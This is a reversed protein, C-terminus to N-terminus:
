SLREKNKYYDVCITPYKRQIMENIVKEINYTFSNLQLEELEHDFIAYNGRNIFTRDQGLSGPNILSYKGRKVRFQKHSHGILSHNQLEIETDEFIYKDDLTHVCTYNGLSLTESFSSIRATETFENYCVDFFAKAVKNEGPYYGSLFYDEHNGLLSQCNLEESLFQVCQDSWPGYNVNDGLSLWNVGTPFKDRLDELAPLNGHLDSFIITRM